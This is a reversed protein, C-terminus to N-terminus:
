RRYISAALPKATAVSQRPKSHILTLEFMKEPVRSNAKIKQDWIDINIHVKGSIGSGWFTLTEKEGAEVIASESSREGM